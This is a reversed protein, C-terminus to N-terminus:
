ACAHVRTALPQRRTRPVPPAAGLTAPARTRRARPRPSRANIGARAAAAAAAGAGMAARPPFARKREAMHQAPPHGRGPVAFDWEDRKMKKFAVIQSRLRQFQEPTFRRGRPLLTNRRRARQEAGGRRSWRGGTPNGVRRLNPSTDTRADATRSARSGRGPPAPGVPDTGLALFSKRLDRARGLDILGFLGLPATPFSTSSASAGDTPGAPTM